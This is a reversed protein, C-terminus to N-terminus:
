KNTVIWSASTVFQNNHSINVTVCIVPTTGNPMTNTLLDPDRWVM